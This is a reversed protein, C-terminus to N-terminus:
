ISGGIIDSITATLKPENLSGDPEIVNALAKIESPGPNSAIQKVEKMIQYESGYVVQDVKRIKDDVKKAVFFATALSILGALINRTPESGVAKALLHDNDKLAYSLVKDILTSAGRFSYILSAATTAYYMASTVITFALRDAAKKKDKQPAFAMIAATDEIEDDLKGGNLAIKKFLPSSALKNRGEFSARVLDRKLIDSRLGSSDRGEQIDRAMLNVMNKRNLSGDPNISFRLKRLTQPTPQRLNRKIEKFISGWGINTDSFVKSTLGKKIAASIAFGAVATAATATSDSMSPDIDMSSLLAPVEHAVGSLGVLAKSTLSGAQGVGLNYAIMNAVSKPAIPSSSDMAFQVLSM